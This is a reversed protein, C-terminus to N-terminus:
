PTVPAPVAKGGRKVKAPAEPSPEEATAEVPVSVPVPPPNLVTEFREVDEPLLAIGVAILLRNAASQLAAAENAPHRAASTMRLKTCLEQLAATDMGKEQAYREIKAWRKETFVAKLENYSTTAIDSM